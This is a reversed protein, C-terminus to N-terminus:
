QSLGAALGAPHGMVQDRPLCVSVGLQYARAYTEPSQGVLLVVPVERQWALWALGQGGEREYLDDNVLLVDCPEHQLVFRARSFSEAEQTVWQDLPHRQFLERFMGQNEPSTGVLVHRRDSDHNM